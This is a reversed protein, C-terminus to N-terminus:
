PFSLSLFLFLLVFLLCVFVLLLLFVFEAQNKLMGETRKRIKINYIPQM